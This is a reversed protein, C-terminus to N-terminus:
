GRSIGNNNSERYLSSFDFNPGFPVLRRYESNAAFGNHIKQASRQLYNTMQLPYRAGTHSYHMPHILLQGLPRSMNSFFEIPETHFVMRSDSLYCEPAFIRPEYANLYGEINPYQGSLSPTHLSLSLVPKGVIDELVKAEDGACKTLISVDSTGYVTPDFHLAVEFGLVSIENIMNRISLSSPNYTEATTLFFYTGNLGLGSEIQALEFAPVVDFDVDHRLLVGHDPASEFSHLGHSTQLSELQSILWSYSFVESM